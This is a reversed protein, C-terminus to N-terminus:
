ADRDVASQARWRLVVQPEGPAARVRADIGLGPVYLLRGEGYLLPADRSWAPVGAAQYQKKLSRPPRTPGAQWREGGRRPLLDVRRVADLAVGGEHM